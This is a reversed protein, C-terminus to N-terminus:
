VELKVAEEVGSEYLCVEKSNRKDHGFTDYVMEHDM